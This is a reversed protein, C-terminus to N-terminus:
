RAFPMDAFHEALRQDAHAGGAVNRTHMAALRLIARRPTTTAPMKVRVTHCSAYAEIM